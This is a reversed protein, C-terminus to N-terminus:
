RRDRYALFVTEHGGQLHIDFRYGGEPGVDCILTDRRATDLGALLPDAGLDGGPLYARTFLRNLLGRAFVTLAFFAPRGPTPSGPAVTTFSYRGDPDTASRGWGTFTHRDRRLSGPRQVINGDSDPQWLEVLADPVGRGAGDYVTGYLRIAGPRADDVLHSDGDFPLACHFFPGVTQGPTEVLSAM